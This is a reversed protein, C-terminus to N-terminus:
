LTKSLSVVCHDHPKFGPGRAKSDSARGSLWRARPAPPRLNLVMGCWVLPLRAQHECPLVYSIPFTPLSVIKYPSMEFHFYLLVHRKKSM